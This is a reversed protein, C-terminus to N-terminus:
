ITGLLSVLLIFLKKTHLKYPISLLELLESEPPAIAPITIPIM